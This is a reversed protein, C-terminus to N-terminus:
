YRYVQFILFAAFDEVATPYSHIERVVEHETGFGGKWHVSVGRM